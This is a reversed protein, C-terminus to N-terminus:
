GPHIQSDLATHDKIGIDFLINEQFYGTITATMPLMGHDQINTELRREKLAEAQCAPHQINGSRLGPESSFILYGRILPIEAGSPCADLM